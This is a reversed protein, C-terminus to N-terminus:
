QESAPRGASWDLWARYAKANGQGWKDSPDGQEDLELVHGFEHILTDLQTRAPDQKRICVTIRTEADNLSTSGGDAM